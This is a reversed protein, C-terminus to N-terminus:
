GVWQRLADVVSDVGGSAGDRWDEETVGFQELMAESRLFGPTVAVAAVNKRRLEWAQAFALRIVATKVLDYASEADQSGAADQAM